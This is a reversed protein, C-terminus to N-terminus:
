KGQEGFQYNQAERIIQAAIGIIEKRIDEDVEQFGWKIARRDCLDAVIGRAAAHQWDTAPFLGEITEVTSTPDPADYPWRQGHALMMSAREAHTIDQSGTVIDTTM